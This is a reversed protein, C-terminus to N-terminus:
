RETGLRKNLVCEAFAMDEPTTIKINEYSGEVIRVAKGTREVLSSEDTGMFGDERAKKFAANL